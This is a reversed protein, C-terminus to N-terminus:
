PVIVEKFAEFPPACATSKLAIVVPAFMMLLKAAPTM